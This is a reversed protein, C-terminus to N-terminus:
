QKYLICTNYYRQCEKFEMFEMMLCGRTQLRRTQESIDDKLLHMNVIFDVDVSEQLIFDM